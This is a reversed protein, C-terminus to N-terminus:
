VVEHHSTHQAKCAAPALTMGIRYSIVSACILSLYAASEALALQMRCLRMLRGCLQM